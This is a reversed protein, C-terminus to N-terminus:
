GTMEDLLRQLAVKMREPTDYTGREISARIAEVKASRVDPLTRLKELHRAHDSIDVRDATPRADAATAPSAHMRSTTHASSTGISPGIPAIDPM